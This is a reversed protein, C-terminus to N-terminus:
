RRPNRFQDQLSGGKGPDANVRLAIDLPVSGTRYCDLVEGGEFHHLIRCGGFDVAYFNMERRQASGGSVLKTLQRRSRRVGGRFRMEPLGLAALLGNDFDGHLM